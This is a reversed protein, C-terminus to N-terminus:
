EKTNLAPEFASTFSKSNEQLFMDLTNRIEEEVRDFLAVESIDPQACDVIKVAHLLCYTEGEHYVWFNFNLASTTASVTVYGGHQQALNNLRTLLNHLEILVTSNM